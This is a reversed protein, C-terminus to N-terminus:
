APAVLPDAACCGCILINKPADAVKSSKLVFQGAISSRKISETMSKGNMVCTGSQDGDLRFQVTLNSSDLSTFTGTLNVPAGGPEFEAKSVNRSYSTFSLGSASRVGKLELRGIPCVGCMRLRAYGALVHKDNADAPHINYWAEVSNCPDVFGTGHWSGVFSAAISQATEREMASPTVM